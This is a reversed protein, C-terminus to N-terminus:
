PFMVLLAMMWEMYSGISVSESGSNYYFMPIRYLVSDVGTTVNYTSEYGISVMRELPQSFDLPRIDLYPIINVQVILTQHQEVKVMGYGMFTNYSGTIDVLNYTGVVTNSSGSTYSMSNGIIVNNNGFTLNEMDMVLRQTQVEKEIRVM